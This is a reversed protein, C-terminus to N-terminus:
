RASPVEGQWAALQLPWCAGHRQAIGDEHLRQRQSVVAVDDVERYRQNKRRRL